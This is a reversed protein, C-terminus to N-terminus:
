ADDAGGDQMLRRQEGSAINRAAAIGAKAAGEMRLHVHIQFWLEGDREECHTRCQGGYKQTIEETILMGLGHEGAARKGSQLRGNPLVSPRRRCRNQCRITYYGGSEFSELRIPSRSINDLDRCAEIANDLVNGFISCLDLDDFPTRGSLAVAARFPIGSADMLRQKATLLANVVANGCFPVGDHGLVEEDNQLLQRFDAPRNQELLRIAKEFLGRVDGHLRGMSEYQEALAEYYEAQNEVYRNESETQRRLRDARNVEKMAFHIGTNAAGFACATLLLVVAVRGSQAALGQYLLVGLAFVQSAWLLGYMYAPRIPKKQVLLSWVTYFLLLYFGLFVAAIAHDTAVDLWETEEPASGNFIAPTMLLTWEVTATLLAITGSAWALRGSQEESRGVSLMVAGGLLVTCLTHAFPIQQGWRWEAYQIAGYAFGYLAVYGWLLLARPVHSLLRVYVSSQMYGVIAAAGIEVAVAYTWQPM